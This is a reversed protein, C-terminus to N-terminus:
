IIGRESNNIFNTINKIEENDSMNKLMDLTDSRNYDSRFFLKYAKKIKSLTDEKVISLISCSINFVLWNLNFM